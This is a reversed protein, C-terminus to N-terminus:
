TLITKASVGVHSCVSYKSVKIMKAQDTPVLPDALITDLEPRSVDVDGALDLVVGTEDVLAQLFADSMPELLGSADLGACNDINQCWINTSNVNFFADEIVIM